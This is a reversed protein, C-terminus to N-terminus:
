RAAGDQSGGDKESAPKGGRGGRGKGPRPKQRRGKGEHARGLAAELESVMTAFDRRVTEGVRAVLVYDWGQRGHRGIVDWALARLRRKARNRAVANGVKKSATLGLRAPRPAGAEPQVDEDERRQRAQLVFGPTAVSQARSARLFDARKKIPIPRLLFLAASQSRAGTDTPGTKGPTDPPM